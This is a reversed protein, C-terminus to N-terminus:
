IEIEELDDDDDQDTDGHAADDLAWRLTDVAEALGAVTPNDFLSNLPLSVQLQDRIRSVLQTALLSHGGLGFFDDMVGAQDIGLLDEWILVLSEETPTRPPTYSQTIAQHPAPLANRDIKGNPTLPFKDLVSFVAPVMYEPLSQRLHDQLAPVLNRQMRGQMPNNCCQSLSLDRTPLMVRGDTSSNKPTFLANYRGPTTSILQLDVSAAEALAHLTDAQMGASIDAAIEQRLNGVSLEQEPNIDALRAMAIIEPHLRSDSISTLLLGGPQLNSLHRGITEVDLTSKWDLRESEPPETKSGDFTLVADYRFCTMENRVAGRKLDFRVASLRPLTMALNQFLAPDILLEEETEIRQHVRDTLTDLPLKDEAQFLQVSTHYAELLSLARLDGLFIHGGKVLLTTVTQLLNLLYAQDPFYQAVSNIVIMDFQQDSLEGLSDATTQLTEVSGLDDRVSKLKEIAAIAAPSFDTAVYHSCNPAVRAVLLGTGSGIELVRKPACANIRAATTEVWERMEAAPVPEGSYSSNWGSINFAPDLSREETYANQWLDRWQDLQEAKWKKLETASIAAADAILYGVLRKDGERDERAAVVAQTVAPHRALVTEIEGLEMRYGRIKVQNDNRGLCEIAGDSRYRALDGTRYLRSTDTTFPNGIFREETLGPRKLYGRAVGDGAICLEGPVGVPVPRIQEDVIYMQTNGIPQGVTIPGTTAVKSISSWITTETPGYMNWLEAGTALLRDALERPLAEGGCLIKLGSNGTWGANLLLQWTAPTAQMITTGSTKILEALRLGDGTVDKTAIVLRAGRILPLFLELVAIDFSLTTVALLTDSADLGPQAAMTTLFNVVGRHPLQVGKPQGTSGSTYIVYALDDATGCIPLNTNPQTNLLETAKDLCVLLEPKHQLDDLLDTQTLLGKLEADEMMFHIRDPPFLPDLPVYAAGTKLVGLLAVMMNVSREVYIGILDGPGVGADQLYHGLQNAHRNLEAYSCSQQECIVAIADPTQEAQQMVLEQLQQDRPYPMATNNWDTLVKQTEESGMMPLDTICTDPNAAIGTLLATFHNSMREISDREFLDTSYEISGSFSNDLEILQLFLDYMATGPAVPYDVTNTEPLSLEEAGSYQHVVFLIQFLPTRSRDREPKLHEVLLEFPLDQHAFAGVAVDRARRMLERFTPNGSLDGRLVLTNVFPGILAELATSHRNSVATGLVIEDQQSYRHLLVQFAALLTMYLTMGEKRSIEKLSLGLEAPLSFHHIDGRYTQVAPRPKDVPLDLTSLDALQLDWYDLQEQLQPGNMWNNQWAAFDPYQITLQPLVPQEQRALAAYIQSLERLLVGCSWGDVVFHHTTLSLVADQDDIVFLRARILPVAALPVPPRVETNVRQELEAASINAALTEIQFWDGDPDIEDAPTISLRPGNDTNICTSRLVEHRQILLQLSKRLLNSDIAGQIRKALAVNYFPNDPELEDLFWIRQQAFSLPLLGDRPIAKVPGDASSKQEALLVAIIETKRKRLEGLVDDNIIGKPANYRLREGEVWLEVGRIRLQDLFETTATSATM